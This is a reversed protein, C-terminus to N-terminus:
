SDCPSHATLRPRRQKYVVEGRQESHLQSTMYPNTVCFIGSTREINRFPRRSTSKTNRNASHRPMLQKKDVRSGTAVDPQTKMAFTQGLRQPTCMFLVEPYESLPLRTSVARKAVGDSVTWDLTWNYPSIHVMVGSGSKAYNPSFEFHILKGCLGERSHPFAHHACITILM